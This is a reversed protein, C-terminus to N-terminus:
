SIDDDDSKSSTKKIVVRTVHKLKWVNRLHKQLLDAQFADRAVFQASGDGQSGVGKGGYSYIKVKPDALLAHLKPSALESACLPALHADFARQYESFTRGLLKANGTALARKATQVYEYSLEGLFKQADAHCSSNEDLSPPVNAFASQLDKLIKVTNKEGELDCVVIYFCEKNNNKSSNSSISGSSAINRNSNSTSEDGNTTTKIESGVPTEECKMEDGDFYMTVCVGSGFACAQDMRGCRSPTAIEGLYAMEMQELVNMEKEIGYCKAFARAVLVCIAASSSLGKKVPLSCKTVELCMGGLVGYKKYVERITGAIYSWFKGDKAIRSLDREIDETVELVMENTEGSDTKTRIAITNDHLAFATASIGESTGVVLCSGVHLSPHDRRFGGAQADLFVFNTVVACM